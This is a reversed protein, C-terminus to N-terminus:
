VGQTQSAAAVLLDTGTPRLLEIAQGYAAAETDLMTAASAQGASMQGAIREAYRRAM